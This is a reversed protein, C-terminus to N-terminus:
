REFISIRTLLDSEQIVIADSTASSKLPIPNCGGPTGVSQSNIPAACNKCVIGNPGKFFGVPGCIECSDFIAVVKNDPKQYLLFRVEVGHEQVVFRHLDGDSVQALPISLEGNQFSVPTAPSLSTVSKAYIFEATVLLIFLFATAYVSAMWLRERRASWRAMRREAATEPVPAPQRRRAEFLVMLGALAVIMVVFFWENTVVPGILAMERKSSRIVGNESLEHLGSILLQAAVFFLIVTTFRFFKQLNIRVSGKIFMVGFLVAAFVGLLTGIFSLLASSELKVASLILVTEGGERLVMLFVFLFVGIQSGRVALTGIKGEIEGKLHKGTRMMFIIMTVVFFAAALMVWGEYVDENLNLRSLAIAVGISAVFALALASYVLKRLDPRQIKNLYALTIGVILAAEVGERLTIIFAQLL